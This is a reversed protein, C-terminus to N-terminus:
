SFSTIQKRKEETLEIGLHKYADPLAVRGRPTRAIFGIQLLYPEYVDEITNNDENISASLTDLGCPGGKFKNILSDLLKLDIRDLGLEDVELKTLFEKAELLGIEKKGSVITFDSVRKLLRNAIRPTGRSRKAIERCADDTISLGLVRSARAVITLLEEVNYMEMRCLVGFRDRLPSSLMGARTTAGILTFKNIGIKISKASPGKGIIFDLRYDEM